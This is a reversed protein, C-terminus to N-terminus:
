VIGIKLIWFQLVEQWYCTALLENKNNNELTHNDPMLFVAVQM